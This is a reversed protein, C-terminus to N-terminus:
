NAVPKVFKEFRDYEWLKTDSVLKYIERAMQVGIYPKKKAYESLERYQKQLDELTAVAENYQEETTIM